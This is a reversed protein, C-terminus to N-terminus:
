SKAHCPRMVMAAHWWSITMTMLHNVHHRGEAQQATYDMANPASPWPWMGNSAESVLFLRKPFRTRMDGSSASSTMCASRSSSSTLGPRPPLPPAHHPRPRTKTAPAPCFPNLTALAPAPIWVKSAPSQPVGEVEVVADFWQMLGHRQM